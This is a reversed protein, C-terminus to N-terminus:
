KREPNIFSANLQSIYVEEFKRRLGSIKQNMKQIQRLVVAILVIGAFISGFILLQQLSLRKFGVISMTSIIGGLLSLLASILTTWNSVRYRGIKQMREMESSKTNQKKMDIPRGMKSSLMYAMAGHGGLM